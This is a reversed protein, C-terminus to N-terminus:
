ASNWVTSNEQHTETTIGIAIKRIWRWTQGQKLPASVLHNNTDNIYHRSHRWETISHLVVHPHCVNLPCCAYEMIM